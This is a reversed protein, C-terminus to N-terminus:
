DNALWNALRKTIYPMTFYTMLWSITISIPLGVLLTPWNLMEKFLWLYFAPITMALPLVAIWSSIFRKWMKPPRVSPKFWFDPDTQVHHQDGDLLWPEIDAIISLREPHTLWNQADQKTAFRILAIYRLTDPLPKLVDISLFGIQGRLLDSLDRMAQDYRPHKEPDVDHVIVITVADQSIAMPLNNTPNMNQRKMM